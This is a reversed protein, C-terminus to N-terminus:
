HSQAPPPPACVVYVCACLTLPLSRPDDLAFLTHTSISLTCQGLKAEEWSAKPWSVPAVTSGYGSRELVAVGGGWWGGKAVWCIMRCRTDALLHLLNPQLGQCTLFCVTITLGGEM